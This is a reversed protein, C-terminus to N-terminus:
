QNSQKYLALAHATDNNDESIKALLQLDSKSSELMVAKSLAKEALITDGSNYALHGLTSYLTPNEADLKIWAELQKISTTPNPMRLQKFLPILEAKPGKKQSDILVNQADSHMGQALLQEVYAAQYSAENRQRRNLETWSQKLQHAGQRSAIESLKGKAIQKSWLAYEDGLQSKWQKLKTDLAQWEGNQALARAYRQTLAPSQKLKAEHPQLLSVAHAAQNNQLAYDVELVLATDFTKEINKALAIYREFANTNTLKMQTKALALYNMGAFDGDVTQSLKKEAGEFNGTYLAQLGQEYLMQQKRTRRSGFWVKSGVFAGAFRKYLWILLWLGTSLGILMIGSAVLNTEIVWNGATILVYGKQGILSPAVILTFVVIAVFLLRLLLRKM